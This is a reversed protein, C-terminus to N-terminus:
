RRDVPVSNHGRRCCRRLGPEGWAKCTKGLYITSCFSVSDETCSPVGTSCGEGDCCTCAPFFIAGRCSTSDCKVASLAFTSGLSFSNLGCSEAECTVQSRGVQVITCSNFRCTLTSRSVWMNDCGGAECLVTSEAIDSYFCSKDGVCHAKTSSDFDSSQCGGGICDVTSSAFTSSLCGVRGPQCSFDCVVQCDAFNKNACRDDCDCTKICEGDAADQLERVSSQQGGELLQLEVTM